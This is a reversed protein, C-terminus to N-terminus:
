SSQALSPFRVSVPADVFMGLGSEKVAEGVQKCTATDITSCDIFLKARDGKPIALLGINEDTFVEWVQPGAPLMTIVIDQSKSEKTM